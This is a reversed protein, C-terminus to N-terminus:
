LKNSKTIKLAWSTGQSEWPNENGDLNGLREGFTEKKKRYWRLLMSRARKVALAYICVDYIYM